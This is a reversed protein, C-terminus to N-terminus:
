DSHLQLRSFKRFDPKGIWIGGSKGAQDAPGASKLALRWPADWPSESMRVIVM